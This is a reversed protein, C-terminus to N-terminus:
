RCDLVPACPLRSCHLTHMVLSPFGAHAEACEHVFQQHFGFNRPRLDAFHASLLSDKMDWWEYRLTSPRDPAAAAGRLWADPAAAAAGRLQMAHPLPPCVM